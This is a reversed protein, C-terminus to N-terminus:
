IELRAPFGPARLDTGVADELLKVIQTSWAGGSQRATRILALIRSLDFVGEATKAEFRRAGM